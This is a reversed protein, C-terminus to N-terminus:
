PQTRGAEAYKRCELWVLREHDQTWGKQWPTKTPQKYCPQPEQQVAQERRRPM